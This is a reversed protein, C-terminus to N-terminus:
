STLLLHTSHKPQHSHTPITGTIELYVRRVFQEDTTPPNPAIKEAALKQNVYFDIQRSLGVPDTRYLRKAVEQDPESLRDFPFPLVREDPLKLYVNGAEVRFFVAEVSRGDKDTWKRLSESSGQVPSDWAAFLLFSQLSFRLVLSPIQRM